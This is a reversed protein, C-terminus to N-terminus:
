MDNRLWRSEKVEKDETVVLPSVQTMRLLHGFKQQLAKEFEERWPDGEAMDQVHLLVKHVHKAAEGIRGEGVLEYAEKATSEIRQRFRRRMEMQRNEEDIALFIARLSKTNPNSVQKRALGEIVLGRILDSMTEYECSADALYARATTDLDPHVRVEPWREYHGKDDKTRTRLRAAGDVTLKDAM